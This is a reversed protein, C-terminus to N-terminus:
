CAGEKYVGNDDSGGVIFSELEDVRAELREFEEILRDCLEPAIGELKQRIHKNKLSEIPSTM